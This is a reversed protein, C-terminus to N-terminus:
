EGEDAEIQQVVLAIMQGLNRAEALEEAMPVYVDFEEEVGMLISVVDISTLGLEELTTEPKIAAPDVMGEEVIIAILKELMGPEPLKPWQATPSGTETEESM